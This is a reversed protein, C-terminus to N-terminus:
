GVRADAIEIAGPMTDAFRYRHDFGGVFPPKFGLDVADGSFNRKRRRLSVRCFRFRIESRASEPQADVALWIGPLSRAAILM